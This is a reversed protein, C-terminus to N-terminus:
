DFHRARWDRRFGRIAGLNSRYTAVILLFGLLLGVPIIWWGLLEHGQTPMDTIGLSLSYTHDSPDSSPQAWLGVAAPRFPKLVAAIIFGGGLCYLLLSFLATCFGRISLTAWHLLSQLLLLPSRSAAARQFLSQTLYQEAIQGPDGLATLAAAVAAEQPPGGAAARELVHSRLEQLIDAIEEKPLGRLGSDVKALYDQLLAQAKSAKAM